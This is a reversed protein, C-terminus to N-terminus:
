SAGMTRAAALAAGRATAEAEPCPLVPVGLEVAKAHLWHPSGRGGGFVTSPDLGLHAALADIVLGSRTASAMVGWADGGPWVTVALDLELARDMDPAMDLRRVLTEATGVSDFLDDARGGIGAAAALHDHGAITVPAGATLGYRAAAEASVVGMVSGAVVTPQGSRLPAGSEALGAIGIASLEERLAGLAALAAGLAGELDAVEMEIGDAETAFPTPVSASAQEAGAADICM